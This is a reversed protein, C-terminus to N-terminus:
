LVGNPLSVTATCRALVRLARGRSMSLNKPGQIYDAGHSELGHNTLWIKKSVRHNQIERERDQPL